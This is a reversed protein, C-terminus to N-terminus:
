ALSIFIKIKIYLIKEICIFLQNSLARGINFVESKIEKEPTELDKIAIGFSESCSHLALLYKSKSTYFNQLSSIIIILKSNSRGSADQEM